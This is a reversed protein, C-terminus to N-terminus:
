YSVRQYKIPYSDELSPSRAQKVIIRVMEILKKVVVFTEGAQKVVTDESGGGEVETFLRDTM